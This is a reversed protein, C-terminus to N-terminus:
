RRCQKTGPDHRSLDTEKWVNIALVDDVGIVFTADHASTGAPSQQEAASQGTGPTSRDPHQESTQGAMGIPGILSLLVASISLVCKVKM